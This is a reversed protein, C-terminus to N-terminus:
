DADHTGDRGPVPIRQRLREIEPTVIGALERAVSTRRQYALARLYQWHETTVPVFVRKIGPRHVM